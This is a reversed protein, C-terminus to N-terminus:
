RKLQLDNLKKVIGEITFKPRKLAVSVMGLLVLIMGGEFVHLLQHLAVGSSLMDM